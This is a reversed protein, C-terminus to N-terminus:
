VQFTAKPHPSLILDLHSLNSLLHMRAWVQLKPFHLHPEESCQTHAWLLPTSHACSAYLGSLLSVLCPWLVLPKAM